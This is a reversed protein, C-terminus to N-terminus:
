VAVAISSLQNVDSGGSLDDFDRARPAGLTGGALCPHLHRVGRRALDKLLGRRGHGAPPLQVVHELLLGSSADGQRVRALLGRSPDRECRALSPFASSYPKLRLRRLPTM